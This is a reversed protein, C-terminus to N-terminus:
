ITMSFFARQLGMWRMLSTISCYGARDTRTRVAGGYSDTSALGVSLGAYLAASLGKGSVDGLYLGLLRDNIFFYDLFDGGVERAPRYKRTVEIWPTRLPGVTLMAERIIRAEEM